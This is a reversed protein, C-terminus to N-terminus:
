NYLVSFNFRNNYPDWHLRIEDGIKLGRRRVFNNTWDDIFVYSKSSVWQKFVMYHMSETDVDWISVITGNESLAETQAESSLVPLVLGEVLDKHLLLRRLNGLDSVTLRKRIKWPDDYLMLYTSYGWRRPEAPAPDKMKTHRSQSGDNVIPIFPCPLSKDCPCEGLTLNTCVHHIVQTQPIHAM